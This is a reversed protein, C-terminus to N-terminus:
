APRLFHLILPLLREFELPTGDLSLRPKGLFFLFGHTSFLLALACGEFLLIAAAEFQYIWRGFECFFIVLLKKVSRFDGVLLEVCPRLVDL